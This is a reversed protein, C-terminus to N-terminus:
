TRSHARAVKQLKPHVCFPKLGHNKRTKNHLYLTKKEKEYLFIKGGGCKGAYGGGAAEAAPNALLFAAAVIAASFFVSASLVALYRM